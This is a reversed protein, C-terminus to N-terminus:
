LPVDSVSLELRLERDEREETPVLEVQARRIGDSSEGADGGGRAFMYNADSERAQPQGDKRMVQHPFVADVM